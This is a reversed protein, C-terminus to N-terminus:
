TCWTERTNRGCVPGRVRTAFPQPHKSECRCRSVSEALQASRLHSPSVGVVWGGGHYVGPGYIELDSLHGSEDRFRDAIQKILAAGEGAYANLAALRRAREESSLQIWETLMAEAMRAAWRGPDAAARLEQM